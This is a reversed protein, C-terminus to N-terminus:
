RDLNFTAPQLAASDMAPPPAYPQVPQADPQDVWVPPDAAPARPAVEQLPVLPAESIEPREDQPPASAAPVPARPAEPAPM